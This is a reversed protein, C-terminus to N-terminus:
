ENLLACACMGVQPACLTQSLTPFYLGVKWNSNKNTISEDRTSTKDTTIAQSIAMASIEKPFVILLLLKRTNAKYYFRYPLSVWFLPAWIANDWRAASLISEVACYDSIADFKNKTSLPLARHCIYQKQSNIAVPLASWINTRRIVDTLLPPKTRYKTLSSFTFLRM